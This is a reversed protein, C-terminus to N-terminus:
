YLICWTCCVGLEAYVSYLMWVHNKNKEENEHNSTTGQM